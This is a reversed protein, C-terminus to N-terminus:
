SSIRIKISRKIQNIVSQKFRKGLGESQNKYWDIADNFEKNALEHIKIKM